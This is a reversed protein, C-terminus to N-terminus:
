GSRLSPGTKLGHCDVSRLRREDFKRGLQRVSEHVPVLKQCRGVFARQEVQKCCEWKAFRLELFIVRSATDHAKMTGDDGFTVVIIECRRTRRRRQEFPQPLLDGREDADCWVGENM